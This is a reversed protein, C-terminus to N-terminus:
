PHYYLVYSAYLDNNWWDRRKQSFFNYNHKGAQSQLPYVVEQNVRYAKKKDTEPIIPVIHGSLGLTKRQACIIGVGGEANVKEQIETLSHMRTWGFHEGWQMFWDHIANSYIPLVTDNFVPTVDEGQELRAIAEPTWWVTPLYVHAHFCYDFSYVNCYTDEPTRQYRLSNAVDLKRILRYLSKRKTETSTMDRFPISDDVMPHFKAEMSDLRSHIDPLLVAPKIKNMKKKNEDPSVTCQTEVAEKM